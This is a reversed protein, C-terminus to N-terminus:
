KKTEGRNISFELELGGVGVSFENGDLLSKFGSPKLEKDNWYIEVLKNMSENTIDIANEM